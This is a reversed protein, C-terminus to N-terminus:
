REVDLDDILVAGRPTRGADPETLYLAELTLPGPLDESVPARLERWSGSWDVRRAFDITHAKQTADRLRARLWGGQGDGYAWLKLATPQGLPIKALAYVARTGTGTTFDYELRLSRKGGRAMGGGVSARGVTGAPTTQSTWERAGEFDELLAPAGEGSVTVAAAAAVDRFRVRVAGTAPADSATLMGSPDVAGVGGTAEWELSPPLVLPAGQPTFGRVRFATRSGPALRAAGPTLELRAPRPYVRVALAGRVAGAGASVQALVFEQGAPAALDERVILRGDRVSGLEPAVTWQVDGAPLTVPNYFEDEATLTLPLEAGPLAALTPTALRLRVAPGRPATSFVLLGNAVPREGGGSPRNVV